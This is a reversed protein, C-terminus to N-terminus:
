AVAARHWACQTANDISTAAHAATVLADDLWGYRQLPYQYLNCLITRTVKGSVNAVDHLCPLLNVGDPTGVLYLAPDLEKSPHKLVNRLDWAVQCFEATDARASQAARRAVNAVTRM